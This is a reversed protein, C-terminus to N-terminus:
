LHPPFCANWEVCLLSLFPFFDICNWGLWYPLHLAYLSCFHTHIESHAAWTKNRPNSYVTSCPTISSSLPTLANEACYPQWALTNISCHLPHSFQGENPKCNTTIYCWQTTSKICFNHWKQDFCTSKTCVLDNIQWNCYVSLIYHKRPCIMNNWIKRPESTSTKSTKM